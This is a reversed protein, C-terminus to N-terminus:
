IPVLAGCKPCRVWERAEIPVDMTTSCLTCVTTRIIVPRGSPSAPGKGRTRRFPIAFLLPLALAVAVFAALVWRGQGPPLNSYAQLRMAVPYAAALCPVSGLGIALAVRRSRTM